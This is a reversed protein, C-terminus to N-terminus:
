SMESILKNSKSDWDMLGSVLKALKSNSDGFSSLGMVKYEGENVQFGLFDTITSYYLGLSFPYKTDWLEKIEFPNNVSSISTTNRDGFGDVVVSCLNDNQETYALATLTHSLHHDLYILKKELGPLLDAVDSFCTISSKNFNRLQHSM